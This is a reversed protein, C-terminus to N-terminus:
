PILMFVANSAQRRTGTVRLLMPQPRLGSLRETQVTLRFDGFEFRFDGREVIGKRHLFGHGRRFRHDFIGAEAIIESAGACRHAFAAAFDDDGDAIFDEEGRAGGGEGALGLARQPM